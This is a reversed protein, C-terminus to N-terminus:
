TCPFVEDKLLALTSLVLGPDRHLLLDGLDPLMCGLLRYIPGRLRRGMSGEGHQGGWAAWGMSGEKCASFLASPWASLSALSAASSLLAWAWRSMM